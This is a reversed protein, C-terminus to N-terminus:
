AGGIADAISELMACAAEAAFRTLLDQPNTPNTM